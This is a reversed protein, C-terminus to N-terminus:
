QQSNILKLLAGRKEFYQNALDTVILYKTRRNKGVFKQEILNADLLQTMKRHITAPSAIHQCNMLHTVQIPNNTSEALAIVELLKIATLDTSM